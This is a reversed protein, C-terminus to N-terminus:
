FLYKWCRVLRGKVKELRPVREKCIEVGEPCRPYFPCGQFSGKRKVFRRRRGSGPISELLHMTYPHLPDDFISFVDGLEVIYGDLMVSVRDALEAVIGFDHTIFLVTLNRKEKERAMLDLIRRQTSVDLSTTPEDAILVEPSGVLAMAILARQKMGGSLEHPYSEYVRKPEKFGVERLIDLTKEKAEHGKLGRQFILVEDIQYGVKFVPNLSTNPDQFIMSIRRGRISRMKEESLSLLDMSRYVIEGREILAPPSPVLGMISLATLTKGSGSEGVLFFVEGRRVDFSVGKLVKKSLGRGM